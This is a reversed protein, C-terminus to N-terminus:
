CNGKILSIIQHQKIESQLTLPLVENHIDPLPFGKHKDGMLADADEEEMEKDIIEEKEMIDEETDTKM